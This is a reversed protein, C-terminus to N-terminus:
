NMASALSAALNAAGDDGNVRVRKLTFPGSPVAAGEVTTAGLYGARRVARIVRRDYRGSPYCFFNVPVGFLRRLKRRSGAVERRLDEAGLQTLDPHTLTHSDLEWGAAVLRRVWRNGGDSGSLHNGALNMTGVWGHRRLIPYANTYWDRSGDDFSVVVPKSPLEPGGHWHNWVQQLAVVHYRHRDLYAMHEAFRAPTVYLGPYPAGRPAPAIVHYMLIPVPDRRTVPATIRRDPSEPGAIWGPVAFSQNMREPPAGTAVLGTVLAILVIFRGM